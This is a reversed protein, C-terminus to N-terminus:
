ATLYTFMMVSSVDELSEVLTISEETRSPVIEFGFSELHDKLKASKSQQTIKPSIYLTTGAFMYTCNM